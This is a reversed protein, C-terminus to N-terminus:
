ARFGHSQLSAQGPQGCGSRLLPDNTRAAGGGIARHGRTRKGEGARTDARSRRGSLFLGDRVRHAQACRPVGTVSRSGVPVRPRELGPFPQHLSNAAGSARAVQPVHRGDPGGKPPPHTPRLRWKSNKGRSQRGLRPPQAQIGYSRPLPDNSRAAGGGMRAAIELKCGEAARTDARSHRGGETPATDHRLPKDSRLAV